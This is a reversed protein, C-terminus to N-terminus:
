KIENMGENTDLGIKENLDALLRAKAQPDLDTNAYGNLLMSRHNLADQQTSTAQPKPQSEKLAGVLSTNDFGVSNTNCVYGECRAGAYQQPAAQKATNNSHDKMEPMLTDNMDGM